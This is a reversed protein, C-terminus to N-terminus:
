YLIYDSAPDLYVTWNAIIILLICNNLITVGLPYFSKLSFM